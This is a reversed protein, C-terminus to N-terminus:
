CKLVIFMLEVLKSMHIIKKQDKNVPIEEALVTEGYFKRDCRSRPRVNMAYYGPM